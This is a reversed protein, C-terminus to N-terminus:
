PYRPTLVEAAYRSVFSRPSGLRHIIQNGIEHSFAPLHKFREPAFDDGPFSRGVVACAEIGNEAKDVRHLAIAAEKFERPEFAEAMRGLIRKGVNAGAAPMGVARQDAGHECDDVADPFHDRQDFSAFLNGLAVIV